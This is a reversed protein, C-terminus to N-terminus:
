EEEWWDEGWPALSLMRGVTTGRLFSLAVPTVISDGSTASVSPVVPREKRVAELDEGLYSTGPWGVGPVQGKTARKDDFFCPSDEPTNGGCILAKRRREVYGQKSAEM